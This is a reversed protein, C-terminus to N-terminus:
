TCNMNFRYFPVVRFASKGSAREMSFSILYRFGNV